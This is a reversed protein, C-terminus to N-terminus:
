RVRNANPVIWGSKGGKKRKDDKVIKDRPPIGPIPRWGRPPWPREGAWAVDSMAVTAGVGLVVASTTPLSISCVVSLLAAAVLSKFKPNSLTM